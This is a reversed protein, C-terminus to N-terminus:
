REDHGLPSPNRSQLFSRAFDFLPFSFEVGKSSVMGALGARLWVGARRGVERTGKTTHINNLQHGSVQSVLTTVMRQETGGDRPPRTNALSM